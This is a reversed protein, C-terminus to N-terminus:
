FEVAVRKAPKAVEVKAAKGPKASKPQPKSAAKAPKAAPKAAAALVGAVATKAEALSCVKADCLWYFAYGAMKEKVGPLWTKFYMNKRTAGSPTADFVELLGAKEAETLRASEEVRVALYHSAYDEGTLSFVITRAPASKTTKAM